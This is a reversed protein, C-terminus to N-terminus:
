LLLIMYSTSSTSCCGFLYYSRYSPGIIPQYYGEIDDWKDPSLSGDIRNETREEVGEENIRAREEETSFNRNLDNSLLHM